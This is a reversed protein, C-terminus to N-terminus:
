RRGGTGLAVALADWAAIMTHRTEHRALLSDLGLRVAWPKRVAETAAFLDLYLYDLPIDGTEHLPGLQYLVQSGDHAV